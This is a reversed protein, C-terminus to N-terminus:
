VFCITV